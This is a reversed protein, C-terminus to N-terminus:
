LETDVFKVYPVIHIEKYKDILPTHKTILYANIEYQSWDSKPNLHERFRELNSKFYDLRKLQRESEPILGGSTGLLEQKILTHGSISSPSIDRFKADALVIRKKSESIRLIDYEYKERIQEAPGTYGSHSMKERINHEFSQGMKQKVRLIREKGSMITGSSPKIDIGFLYIIFFLITRRDAIIKDGVRIMIPVKEKSDVYENLFQDFSKDHQHREFHRRLNDIPINVISDGKISYVLGLLIAMDTADVNYTYQRSTRYHLSFLYRMTVTLPWMTELFDAFDIGPVLEVDPTASRQIDEYPFLETLTISSSSVLGYSKYVDDIANLYKLMYVNQTPKVALLYRLNQIDEVFDAYKVIEKIEEFLSDIYSTNDIKGAPSSRNLLILSEGLALFDATSPMMGSMSISDILMKRKEYLYNAISRYECTVIKELIQKYKDRLEQFLHPETNPMLISFTISSPFENCKKNGCIDHNDTVDTYILGGCESCIYDSHCDKHNYIITM